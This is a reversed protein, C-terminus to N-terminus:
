NIEDPLVIFFEEKEGPRQNLLPQTSVAEGIQNLLVRNGIEPAGWKACKIDYHRDKVQVTCVDSVVGSKRNVVTATILNPSFIDSSRSMSEVVFGQSTLTDVITEVPSTLQNLFRKLISYAIKM